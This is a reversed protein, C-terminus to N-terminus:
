RYTLTILNKTLFYSFKRLKMHFTRNLIPNDVHTLIKRCIEHHKTQLVLETDEVAEPEDEKEDETDEGAALGGEPM